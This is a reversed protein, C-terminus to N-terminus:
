KSFALVTCAPEKALCMAIGALCTSFLHLGVARSFPTGVSRVLLMLDWTCPRVPTALVSSWQFGWEGAVEEDEEKSVVSPDPPLEPMSGSSCSREPPPAPPGKEVEKKGSQMSSRDKGQEM